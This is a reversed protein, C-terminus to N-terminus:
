SGPWPFPLLEFPVQNESDTDRVEPLQHNKSRVTPALMWLVGRVSAAISFLVVTNEPVFVM